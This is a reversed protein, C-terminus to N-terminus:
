KIKLKGPIYGNLNLFEEVFLTRASVLAYLTEVLLVFLSLVFCGIVGFLTCQTIM